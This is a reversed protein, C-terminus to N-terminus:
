GLSPFLTFRYHVSAHAHSLRCLLHRIPMSMFHYMVLMFMLLYYLTARGVNPM